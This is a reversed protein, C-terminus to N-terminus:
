YDDDKLHRQSWAAFVIITLILVFPRYWNADPANLWDTGVLFVMFIFILLVIISRHVYM